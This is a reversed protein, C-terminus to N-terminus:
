LIAPDQQVKVCVVLRVGPLFPNHAWMFSQAGYTLSKISKKSARWIVSCSGLRCPPEAETASAVFLLRLLFALLFYVLLVLVANNRIHLTAFAREKYVLHLNCAQHAFSRHVDAIISKVKYMLFLYLVCDLYLVESYYLEELKDHGFYDSYGMRCALCVQSPFM